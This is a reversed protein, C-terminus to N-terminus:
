RRQWPDLGPGDDGPGPHPRPGIIFDGNQDPPPVTGDPLDTARVYGPSHPDRSPPEPRVTQQPQPLAPAQAAWAMAISGTLILLGPFTMRWSM